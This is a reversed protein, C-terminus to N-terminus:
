NLRAVFQIKWKSRRYRMYVIARTRKWAFLKLLVIQINSNRTRTSRVILVDMARLLTLGFVAFIKRQNILSRGFKNRLKM